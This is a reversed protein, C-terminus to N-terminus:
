NPKFPICNTEGDDYSHHSNEQVIIGSNSDTHYINDGYMQMLSGSMIPKKCHFRNDAWYEDYTMKM